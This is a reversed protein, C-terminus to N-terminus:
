NYVGLMLLVILTSAVNQGYFSKLFTAISINSRLTNVMTMYSSYQVLAWYGGEEVQNGRLVYAIDIPIDVEEASVWRLCVCALKRDVASVTSTM